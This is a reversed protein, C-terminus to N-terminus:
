NFILWEAETEAVNWGSYLTVFLSCYSFHRQLSDLYAVFFYLVSVMDVNGCRRLLPSLFPVCLIVFTLGRHM